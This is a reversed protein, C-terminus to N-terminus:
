TWGALAAPSVALALALREVTDGRWGGGDEIKRVALGSIGARRGLENTSLHQALRAARLRAGLGAAGSAPDPCDESLARELHAAQARLTAEATRSVEM